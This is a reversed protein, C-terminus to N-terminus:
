DTKDPNFAKFAVKLYDLFDNGYLSLYEKKSDEDLFNLAETQFEKIYTPDNNKIAKKLKRIDKKTIHEGSPNKKEEKYMCLLFKNMSDFILKVYSQPASSDPKLHRCWGLGHICIAYDLDFTFAAKEAKTLTERQLTVFLDSFAKFSMSVNFIDSRGSDIMKKVQVTYAKVTPEKQTADLINNMQEMKKLLFIKSELQARKEELSNILCGLEKSFDFAPDEFLRKIDKRKYGAEVFLQIVYLKLVSADDYRWYGGTETKETPQLLDIDKSAYGQLTRRSVGTLECVERLTKM